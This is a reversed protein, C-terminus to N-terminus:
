YPQLNSLFMKIEEEARFLDSKNATILGCKVESIFAALRNSDIGIVNRGQLLGEVLSVGSGCFPDVITDGESTLANILTAPVQPIFTAPYWHLNVLYSSTDYQYFDWDIRHLLHELTQTQM